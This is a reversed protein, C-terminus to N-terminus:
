NLDKTTLSGVITDFLPLQAYVDGPEANFIIVYLSGSAKFVYEVQKLEFGSADTKTIMRLTDRAGLTFREEELITVNNGLLPGAVTSVLGLPLASFSDNKIVAFSPPIGSTSDTDYGWLLVNDQALNFVEKLDISSPASSLDVNELIINM